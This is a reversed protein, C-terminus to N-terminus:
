KIERKEQKLDPHRMESRPEPQSEPKMRERPAHEPKTQDFKPSPAPEVPRPKHPTLKEQDKPGPQPPTPLVPKQHVSSEPKAPGPKIQIKERPERHAAPTKPRVCRGGECKLGLSDCSVCKEGRRVECPGCPRSLCRGDICVRGLEACPVCKRGNWFSCQPCDRRPVCRGAVCLRGFEECPVCRRGNWIACPPCTKHVCRGGLCVMGLERCPVCRSGWLVRCEGCDPPVCRGNQFILGLERCPVCREGDWIHGRHCEKRIAFSEGCNPVDESLTGPITTKTILDKLTRSSVGMVQSPVKNEEVDVRRCSGVIRETQLDELVNKVRVKGWIVTVTTQKQSFVQVVFDAKDGPEVNIIATPTTVTYSSAPDTVVLKKVFRILGSPVDAGYFQAVNQREFDYLNIESLEGLSNHSDDDLKIHVKSNQDTQISDNLSVPDGAKISKFETQGAGNVRAEGEVANVSGIQKSFCPQALPVTAIVVAIAFIIQWTNRKSM